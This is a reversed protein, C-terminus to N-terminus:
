KTEGFLEQLKYYAKKKRVEYKDSSEGDVSVIGFWQEPDAKNHTDNIKGDLGGWWDAYCFSVGGAVPYKATLMDNWMEAIGAAQEEETNGGYGYPFPAIKECGPATSLGFETILLAKKPHRERFSEIYGQYMTKTKSGLPETYWCWVSHNYLNMSMFDLFDTNLLPETPQMNSYTMLHTTYYASQEYQKAYDAMQAIFCETATSGPPASIYEGDYLSIEPYKEDNARIDKEDLENGIDYALVLSSYDIGGLNHVRDITRRIHKKQREKFEPEFLDKQSEIWINQILYLGENRAGEYVAQPFDHIRVANANMAKIDKMDGLIRHRVSQPTNPDDIWAWPLEGPRWYIYAVGKVLFQKGDKYIYDRGATFKAASATGAFVGALIVASVALRIIKGM